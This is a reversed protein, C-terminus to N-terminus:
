TKPRARRDRGGHSVSALNALFFAWHTAHVKRLGDWDAGTGHGSHVLTLETLDEDVPRLTFTVTTPDGVKRHSEYTFTMALRTPPRCELIEGEIIYDGEQFLLRYPGTGAAPLEAARPFWSALGEPTSLCTFLKDIPAWIPLQFVLEQQDSQM